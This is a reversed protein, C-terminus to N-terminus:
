PLDKFVSYIYALAIKHKITGSEKRVEKAGRRSEKREGKARRESQKGEGEM